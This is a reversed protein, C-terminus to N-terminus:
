EGLAWSGHLYGWAPRGSSCGQEEHFFDMSSLGTTGDLPWSVGLHPFGALIQLAAQLGLNLASAPILRTSILLTVQSIQLSTFWFLYKASEAM